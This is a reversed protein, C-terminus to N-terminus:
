SKDPRKVASGIHKRRHALSLPSGSQIARLRTEVEKLKAQLRAIERQYCLCAFHESCRPSQRM